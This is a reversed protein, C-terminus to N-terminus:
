EYRLTGKEANLKVINNGSYTGTTGTGGCLGGSGEYHIGTVASKEEINKTGSNAYTVTGLGEQAPVKVTCGALPVSITIPEEINVSGSSFLNYHAASITVGVFGFATCGSYNVVVKQHTAELETVEGTTAAATCKVEGAGTVFTQTGNATGTLSGTESAKFSAASSSAVAVACFAFVAVGTVALVKMFRKM